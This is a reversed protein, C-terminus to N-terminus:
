LHRRPLLVALAIVAILLPLLAAAWVAADLPGLGLGERVASKVGIDLSVPQQTGAAKLLMRLFADTYTNEYIWEETFMSANGVAILTGRTNEGDYRRTLVALDFYGTEEGDQRQLTEQGDEYARIYAEGSKLLSEAYISIDRDDSITIARTGPMLLIDQGNALLEQTEPAAQMYPLLSVPSDGYYGTRDNGSAVVVGSRIGLGFERLLASFHELNVPSTYDAIFLLGGGADLYIMIWELEKDTLDFQPCLIMLPQMSELSNEDHLSVRVTQYGADHLHAELASTDGEGMEGHGTLLQVVPTQESSVYVIAETLAKEVAYASVTYSQSDLDYQMRLFDDSTLMRARSTEPCYVVVCDETISEGNLQEAFRASWTPSQLLNEESFGILPSLNRYRELITRLDSRLLLSDGFSDSTVATLLYMDIRHNLSKLTDETVASQLTLSNFSLDASLAYRRELATAFWNGCIFLLIVAATLIATTVIARRKRGLSPRPHEKNM